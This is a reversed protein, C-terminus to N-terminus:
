GFDVFGVAGISGICTLVHLLVGGLFGGVSEVFGVM